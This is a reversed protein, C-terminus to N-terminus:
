NKHSNGFSIAAFVILCDTKERHCFKVFYEILVDLIEYPEELSAKLIFVESFYSLIM